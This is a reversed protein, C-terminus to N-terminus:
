KFNTRWELTVHYCSYKDASDTGATVDFHLSNVIDCLTATDATTPSSRRSAIYLLETISILQVFHRRPCHRNIVVTDELMLAPKGFM